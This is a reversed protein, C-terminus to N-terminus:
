NLTEHGIHLFNGIKLDFKLLSVNLLKTQEKQKENKARDCGKSVIYLTIQLTHRM